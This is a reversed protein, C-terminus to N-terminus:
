KDPFNGDSHDIIKSKFDTNHFYHKTEDIWAGFMDKTYEDGKYELGILHINDAKLVMDAFAISYLGVNKTARKDKKYIANFTVYTLGLSKCRNKLEVVTNNRFVATTNSGRLKEGLLELVKKKVWENIECWITFDPMIENEILDNTSVDVCLILGDFNKIFDFDKYSPGHGVILVDVTLNVKLAEALILM